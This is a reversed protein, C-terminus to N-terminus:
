VPSQFMNKLLKCIVAGAKKYLARAEKASNIASIHGCKLTARIQSPLTASDFQVEREQRNQRFKVIGITPSGSRRLQKLGFSKNRADELYKCIAEIMSMHEQLSLNNVSLFHEEFHLTRQRADKEMVKWVLLDGEFSETLRLTLLTHLQNLIHSVM